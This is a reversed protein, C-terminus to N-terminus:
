RRDDAADSTYLLCCIDEIGPFAQAEHRPRQHAHANRIGRGHGPAECYGGEEQEEEGLSEFTPLRIDYGFFKNLTHKSKVNPEMFLSKQPFKELQLLLM